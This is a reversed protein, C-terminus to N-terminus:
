KKAFARKVVPLAACLSLLCLLGAAAYHLIPQSILHCLLGLALLTFLLLCRQATTHSLRFRYIRGYVVTAQIFDLLGALTLGLGAGALGGLHYGVLVCLCLLLDYSLEMVMYTLADGRALALSEIPMYMARFFMSPAACIVMPIVSLFESTYLLRIILPLALCFVLLFPCMLVILVNIQKNIIVHEERVRKGAAALRPFFDSDLASFILRAYSVTLTIGAAYLGVTSLSNETRMLAARIVIEAGATMVGAVVYAAGLRLMPIGQALFGRNRLTFCLPYIKRTERLCIGYLCVPSLVLVPVIGRMGLWAYFLLSTCLTAVAGFLTCLALSRLRQTAKLLTMEGTALTSFGVFPALLMFAYTHAASGTAWRSILPAFAFCVGTGLLATLLVWSRILRVLNVLRESHPNEADYEESLRKIASLGLGFNTGSGVLDLTRAYLDALGMGEAGIFLATIKNRVVAILVYLVQVSGLLGTARFIHRYSSM